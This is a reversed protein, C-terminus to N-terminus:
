QIVNVVNRNHATNREPKNPDSEININLILIVIKAHIVRHTICVFSGMKQADHASMPTPSDDVHPDINPNMSPCNGNFPFTTEQKVTPAHTPDDIMGAIMPISIALSLRINEYKETINEMSIAAINKIMYTMHLVIRNVSTLRTKFDCVETIEVM